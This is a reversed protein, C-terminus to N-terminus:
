NPKSIFMSNIIYIYIHPEVDDLPIADYQYRNGGLYIHYKLGCKGRSWIQSLQVYLVRQQQVKKCETFFSEDDDNIKYNDGSDDDDDNNQDDDYITM